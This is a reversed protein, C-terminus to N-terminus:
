RQVRVGGRYEAVVEIEGVIADNFAELEEAPVWLEKHAQGGAIEVPYRAAM